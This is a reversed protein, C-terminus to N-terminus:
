PQSHFGDHASGQLHQAAFHCTLPPRSSQPAPASMVAALHEHRDTQATVAATLQMVTDQLANFKSPLQKDDIDTTPKAAFTLPPINSQCIAQFCKAFNEMEALTPTPNAELLKLHKGEPLGCIFQRSLLAEHAADNLSSDAKSLLDKLNWLVITPDEDPHLLRQEFTAFNKEHDVDPCFSALLQEKLNQYSDNVENPM